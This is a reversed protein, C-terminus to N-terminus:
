RPPRVEPTSSSFVPQGNPSFKVSGGGYYDFVLDVSWRFNGVIKPCAVDTYDVALTLFSVRKILYGNAAIEEIDAETIPNGSRTAIALYKEGFEERLVAKIQDTRSGLRTSQLASMYAGPADFMLAASRRVNKSDVFQAQDAYWIPGDHIPSWQDRALGRERAFINRGKDNPIDPYWGNSLSHSLRKSDFLQEHAAPPLLQM